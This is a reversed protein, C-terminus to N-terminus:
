IGLRESGRLIVRTPLVIQEVVGMPQDMRSLALEAAVEGMREPEHAVVSLGLAEALEFDDFGLLGIPAALERTARLVGVAARNNGAFVATPAPDATLVRRTANAASGIDPGDTCILAPDIPLDRAELADRYGLVRERHTYLSESSGVFAVRRHGADLLALVGARAGARNDFVVSDSVANSLPRDVAVIPTGFQREGELYSHDDAIPVLLLARIRRELMAIVVKSELRSEDDTAALVLTLGERAIAREV